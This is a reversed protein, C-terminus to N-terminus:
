TAVSCGCGDAPLEWYDFPDATAFSYRGLVPDRRASDLFLCHPVLCLRLFVQETDVVPLLEQVVPLSDGSTVLFSDRVTRTKVIRPTRM